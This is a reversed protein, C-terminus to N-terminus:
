VQEHHASEKLITAVQEGIMLPVRKQALQYASRIAHQMAIASAGGHSKVVVGNLGLLVAGNYRDPEMVRRVKRFLPYSLLALLRTLISSKITRKIHYGAMKLVGEISKLAVNGVFGDCVIVDFDGSFIQDAEAYGEFNLLQCQDLLGKCRKVVENGKIDEVGVNLLGVRPHENGTSVAAFVSGMVAFQYLQDASTDVTAGLDLVYTMVGTRRTPLACIIAPREIGKITRLVLHSTAMLAGTNGSSVCAMAHGQKVQDVAIRMSSQKKHRLAHAPSDGMEVVQASAVAHWRDSLHAAKQTMFTNITSEDGVLLLRLNAEKELAQVAAPLVANPGLDGSMVDLAVTTLM